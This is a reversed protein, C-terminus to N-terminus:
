TKSSALSTTVVIRVGSPTSPESLAPHQADAAAAAAAKAKASARRVQV